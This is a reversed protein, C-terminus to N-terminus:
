KTTRGEGEIELMIKAVTIRSPEAIGTEINNITQLCLGCREAFQRQSLRHKARYAIIKDALNNDM